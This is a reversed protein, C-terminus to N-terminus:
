AKHSKRHESMLWCAMERPKDLLKGVFKGIPVREHILYQFVGPHIYNLNIGEVGILYGNRMVLRLSRDGDVNALVECSKDEQPNAYGISFLNKDFCRLYNCSVWGDYEMREDAMNAGAVKGQEVAAPLIPCTASSYDLFSPAAAIDGAAFVNPLSTRMAKDVKIGGEITELGANAILNSAVGTALILRDVWLDRENSLRLIMRGDRKEVSNLTAHSIVEAGCCAFSEELMAVGKASFYKRLLSSRAIIKVSHGAQCLKEAAEVAVLGAGYIAIDQKAALGVTLRKFDDYTRLTYVDDSLLNEIMPIQPRAGTAILLKDYSKRGGSKFRVENFQSDIEEVEEGLLIEADYEELMESGKQFFHNESLEDSILYPLMAPSYPLQTERTVLTIEGTGDTNRISRVAALAAPCAGIILYQKNKM